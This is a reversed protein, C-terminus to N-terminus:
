LVWSVIAFRTGKKISKATHPYLFNSPWVVAKGVEPKITKIIKDGDPSLFELEGGEYDNNLFIVISCTRPINAHHDTHPKYFDGEKYKLVSVDLVKSVFEREMYDQSYKLVLNRVVSILLNTWHVITLSQDLVNLAAIENNRVKKTAKSEGVTKADEFKLFKNFSKIMNAVVTAPLVKDFVKIHDKLQM